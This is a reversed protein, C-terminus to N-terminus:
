DLTFSISVGSVIEIEGVALTQDLGETSAGKMMYMPRIIPPTYSSGDTVLIAKGVKQGLATAYDSAKQRAEKVALVRAETEYKTLQSSEFEVGEIKNIGADMVGLILEEYKDINTLTIVITQSAKYYDKKDNTQYLSVRQTQINKDEIQISKLYKLVKAIVQDNAKKATAADLSKNEVGLRIIARDPTVSVKGTGNVQIQPTIPSTYTTQAFTSTASLLLVGLLISVKKM